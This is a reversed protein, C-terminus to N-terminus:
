FPSRTETPIPYPRGDVELNNEACVEEDLATVHSWRSGPLRGYVIVGSWPQKFAKPDEVRVRAELRAGNDIVRYRETVRMEETHPTGFLDVPTDASQGITVIVLTDGEYHGVSQGYPSPRTMAHFPENLYIRRVQHDRQYLITVRTPTQLFQVPGPLTLVMPVGSARCVEQPTPIHTASGGLEGDSYKKVVEAAWPRLNGHRYDGRLPQYSNREDLAGDISPVAAAEGPIPRFEQMPGKQWFGSFDPSVQQSQAPEIMLSVVVGLCSLTFKVLIESRRSNSVDMEFMNTELVQVL